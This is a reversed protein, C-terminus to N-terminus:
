EININREEVEDFYVFYDTIVSSIEGPVVGIERIELIMDTLSLKREIDRKKRIEDAIDIISQKAVIVKSM